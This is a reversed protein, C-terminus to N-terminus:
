FLLHAAYGLVFPVVAVLALRVATFRPGLVPIEFMLMAVNAVSWATLFAICTGVGAGVRHIAAILPFIAYPPGPIVVGASAGIAIGRWGSESGLWASVTDRPLVVEVMGVAMFAAILLPAMRGLTKLGAQTSRRPITRDHRSGAYMVAAAMVLILLAVWGM